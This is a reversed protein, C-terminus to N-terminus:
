RAKMEGWPARPGLLAVLTADGFITAPPALAVVRGQDMVAVVDAWHRAIDLDHTALIISTGQAVLQNLITFLQQRMWPDLGAMVEDALILKPQMALVGALAVRTKEGGSLAHTPRDLLAGVGCLEAAHAVREEAAAVSLGLNLPGFSIDQAVSASFLQEDPNQLILGVRRRLANLGRRHYAITQGEVQITGANPRLLGNIHLLLTSKGAGNRGLLVVRQGAAVTLSAGALAAQSSGPFHYHLQDCVLLPNM